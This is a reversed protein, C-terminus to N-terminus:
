ELCLMGCTCEVISLLRKGLMERTDKRCDSESEIMVVINAVFGGDLAVNSGFMLTTLIGDGGVGRRGRIFLSLPILLVGM